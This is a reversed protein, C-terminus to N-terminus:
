HAAPLTYDDGLLVRINFEDTTHTDYVVTQVNLLKLIASVDGAQIAKNYVTVITKETKEKSNLPEITQISANQLIDTVKLALGSKKTGNEVRVIAPTKEPKGSYIDLVWSHIKSWNDIGEKPALISAGSSATTINLYNKDTLAYTHIEYGSLEGSYKLLAKMDSLSIDTKLDNGLSEIFPIIKPIFSPTLIQQKVALLLNRQRRARGFDSGDIASHRSRVYELATTGDMHTIGKEFHLHKYRCSFYEWLQPEASVTATYKEIDEPSHGCSEDEIKDLPYAFDDFTTEVQVDVGGLADITNKFGAFDIAIFYDIAQGTVQSTVYKALNAGGVEGTFESPKNPYGKDDLGIQYAANIKWHNETGDANPISIWTDRPISVLYVKKQVPDIRAAIMSDTLYTGDHKGGAYGMLLVSFPKKHAFKQELTVYTEEPKNKTPLISKSTISRIQILVYLAGTVVLSLCIILLVKWKM